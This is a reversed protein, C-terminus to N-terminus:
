TSVKVMTPRIVRDRYRYGPQLEEVVIGSEYETSEVQMVANHVHPDFPMGVAEVLSLGSDSLAQLLQRYVMEVGDLFGRNEETVNASDLAREFNDLVPLLSEILPVAAYKVADEKEKRARRRANELDAVARALQNKAEVLENELQEQRQQAALLKEELVSIPEEKKESVPESHEEKDRALELNQENKV